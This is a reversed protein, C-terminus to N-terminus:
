FYQFRFYKFNKQQDFKMLFLHSLNLSQLFLILLFLLSFQLNLIIMQNQFSISKTQFPISHYRIWRTLFSLSLFLVKVYVYKIFKMALLVILNFKLIELLNYQYFIILKIQNRFVQLNKNDEKSKPFHHNFYYYYQNTFHLNNFVLIQKFLILPFISHM